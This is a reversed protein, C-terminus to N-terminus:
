ILVRYSEHLVLLCSCTFTHAKRGLSLLLEQITSYVYKKCGLYEELFREMLQMFVQWGAYYPLLTGHENITVDENRWKKM